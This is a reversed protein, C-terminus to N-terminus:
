VAAGPGESVPRFARRVRADLEEVVPSLEGAEFLRRMEVRRVKGSTSRLVGGPKVFVVSGVSVGLRATLGSLVERALERTADEGVDRSRLEQVLVVSEGGGAVTVTFAAGVGDACAPHQERAAREIDQPYVNRGNLIMVEKLRGTVYLEGGHCVGLDGTRLFPGAGDATYARFTRETEEPLGWYGRAVSPGSLWIEGIEGAGLERLSRPDVIRLDYGGSVPGSSVLHRADASAAKSGSESAPEPEPESTFRHREFDGGRVRTVVAPSASSGGSVFLTTEAMGYSPCVTEPRLGAPAFHEVFGRVTSEQVPEAGNVAWRWRSLDLAAVQRESVRRVCLDYAFNPAPSLVVDHRDIMELWLRPRRLFAAPSMIFTQGGLALPLLLTGMLGMDHYPPLWGGVRAGEPIGYSRRIAELNAMLNAHTVVVGRPERTSGSTYQLFATTDPGAVPPVRDGGRRVASEASLCRVGRASGDAWARVSPLSQEDTLVAVAGSSVLMGDLRELQGRGDSPSPGPVPVLGAYLCGLFSVLFEPGPPCALLIRDGPECFDLLAAGVAVASIDLEGYGLQRSVALGSTGTTLFSYATDDPRHRAHARVVDIISEPRLM